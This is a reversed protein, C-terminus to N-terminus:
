MASVSIITPMSVKEFNKGAISLKLNTQPQFFCPSGFRKQLPTKIAHKFSLSSELTYTIVSPNLACTASCLPQVVELELESFQNLAFTSLTFYLTSIKFFGGCGGFLSVM